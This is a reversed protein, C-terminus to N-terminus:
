EAAPLGGAQALMQRLDAEVAQEETRGIAARELGRLDNSLQRLAGDYGLRRKLLDPLGFM